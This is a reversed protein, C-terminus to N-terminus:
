QVGKPGHLRILLTAEDHSLGSSQMLETVSAGNRVKQIAASYAHNASDNSNSGSGYAFDTMKTNLQGSNHENRAFDNTETRGFDPAKGSGVVALQEPRPYDSLKSKLSILQEDTLSLRGELSRSASCVYSIDNSYGHVIDSLVAYDQRLKQHSRVLWVLAIIIVIVAGAVLSLTIPLFPDTM